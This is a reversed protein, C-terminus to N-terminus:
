VKLPCESLQVSFIHNLLINLALSPLIRTASSVSIWDEEGGFPDEHTRSRLWIVVLGGDTLLLFSGCSVM